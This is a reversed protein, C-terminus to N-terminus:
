MAEEAWYQLSGKKIIDASDSTMRCIADKTETGFVRTLHSCSVKHEGSGDTFSEYFDYKMEKGGNSLFVTSGGM